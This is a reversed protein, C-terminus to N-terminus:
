DRAPDTRAAPSGSGDVPDGTSGSTPTAAAPDATVDLRYGVEAPYPPHHARGTSGDPMWGRREYLARATPNAELVWLRAVAHGQQRVLDVAADLLRGGYGRRWHEPRVYLQDIRDGKVTVFGVPEDDGVAVLVQYAKDTLIRWCQAAVQQEPFPYRDPPFLEGYAATSAAHQIAYLDQSDAPEGARLWM